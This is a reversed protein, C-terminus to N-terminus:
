AVLQAVICLICWLNGHKLMRYVGRTGLPVELPLEVVYFRTKIEEGSFGRTLGFVRVNAM